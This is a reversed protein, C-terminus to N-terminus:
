SLEAIRVHNKKQLPEHHNQREEARVATRSDSFTIMKKVAV